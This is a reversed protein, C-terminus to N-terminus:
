WDFKSPLQLIALLDPPTKSLMKEMENIEM